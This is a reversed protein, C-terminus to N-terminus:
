VEASASGPEQLRNTLQGFENEIDKQARWYLSFFSGASHVGFKFYAVPVWVWMPIPTDTTTSYVQLMITVILLWACLRTSIRSFARPKKSTTARNLGHGVILGLLVGALIALSVESVSGVRWIWFVSLLFGCFSPIRLDDILYTGLAVGTAMTLAFCRLFIRAETM